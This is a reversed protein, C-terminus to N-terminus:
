PALHERDFVKGQMYGMAAGISCCVKERENLLDIVVVHPVVDFGIVLFDKFFSAPFGKAKADEFEHMWKKRKADRTKQIVVGALRNPIFRKEQMTRDLSHMM